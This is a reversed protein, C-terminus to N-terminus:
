FFIMRSLALLPPALSDSLFLFSNIDLLTANSLRALTM